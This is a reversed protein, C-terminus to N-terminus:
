EPKFKGKLRMYMPEIENLTFLKKEIGTKIFRWQQVKSWSDVKTYSPLALLKAIYEDATKLDHKSLALMWHQYYLARLMDADEPSVLREFRGLNQIADALLDSHELSMQIELSSMNGWSWPNTLGMYETTHSKLNTLVGYAQEWDDAQDLADLYSILVGEDYNNQEFSRRLYPLADKFDGSALLATGHSYDYYFSSTRDLGATLRTKAATIYDDVSKYGLWGLFGGVTLVAVTSWRYFLFKGNAEERFKTFEEKLKLREQVENLALRQLESNANLKAELAAIEQHLQSPDLPLEKEPAAGTASM